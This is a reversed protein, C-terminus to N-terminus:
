NKQAVGWVVSPFRPHNELSHKEPDYWNWGLWESCARLDAIACEVNGWSGTLCRNVDFGGEELLYKLGDETWRTFDMPVGHIHILFPTTVLFRGGSRLMRHVNKVARYPYKVHELVQEAFIFDFQKNPVVDYNLDFDPFHVSDYTKWKCVKRWYGGSIELADMRETKLASVIERTRDNMVKRCWHVKEAGMDGLSKLPSLRQGEAIVEFKGEILQRPDIFTNIDIQFGAVNLPAWTLDQRRFSTVGTAIEQGDALIQICVPVDPNAKDLAWGSLTGQWDFGDVVGSIKRAIRNEPPRPSENLSGFSQTPEIVEHKTFEM